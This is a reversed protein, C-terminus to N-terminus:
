EASFLREVEEDIKFTHYGQGRVPDQWTVMVCGPLYPAPRGPLVLTSRREGMVDVTELKIVTGVDTRVMNGPRLDQVKVKM